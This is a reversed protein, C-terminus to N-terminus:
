NTAERRMVTEAVLDPVYTDLFGPIWSVSSPDIRVRVTVFTGPTATTLVAPELEVTAGSISLLELSENVKSIVQTSQASPLVALRAGERTAQIAQSKVMMFRGVEVLGFTFTMMLPAIIAFEVAAAGKRRHRHGRLPGQVLSDVAGTPHCEHHRQHLSQLLSMILSVHKGSSGLNNGRTIFM